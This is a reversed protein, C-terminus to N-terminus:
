RVELLDAVRVPQGTEFSRNAAVGVLLALAGERQTSRRGLPDPEGDGGFLAALMRQDAGGHGARTHLLPVQVPPEWFPHLSLRVWGEEAPAESGHLSAGKVTGALAPNVHANEVVELELRGRSGNVALRYGEWPSYATLHYTLTAGSAYRVMVAM